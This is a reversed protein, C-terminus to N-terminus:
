CPYEEQAKDRRDLDLSKSQGTEAEAGGCVQRLAPDTRPRM